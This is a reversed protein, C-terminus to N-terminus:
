KKKKQNKTTRIKEVARNQGYGISKGDYRGHMRHTFSNEAIFLYNEEDDRCCAADEEGEDVFILSHPLKVKNTIVIM